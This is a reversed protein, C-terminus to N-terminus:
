RGVKFQHIIGPRLRAGCSESEGQVLACFTVIIGLKTVAVHCYKSTELKIGQKNRRTTIKSTM